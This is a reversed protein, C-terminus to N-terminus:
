DNTRLIFPYPVYPHETALEVLRVMVIEICKGNKLHHYHFTRQMDESEQRVAILDVACSVKECEGGFDCFAM